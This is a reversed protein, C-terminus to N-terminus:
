IQNLSSKLSAFVTWVVLVCAKEFPVMRPMMWLQRCGCYSRPTNRAWSGVWGLQEECWQSQIVMRGEKRRERVRKRESFSFLISNGEQARYSLKTTVTPQKQGQSDWGEDDRWSPKFFFFFLCLCNEGQFKIGGLCPWSEPSTHSARIELVFIQLSM